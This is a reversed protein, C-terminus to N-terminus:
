QENTELRGRNVFKGLKELLITMSFGLAGVTIIGAIVLALDFKERGSQIRTGIGIRTQIFLEAAMLIAWSMGLSLNIGTIISPLAAPIIVKRILTLKKYGYVSALEIYKKPVSRVGAFTNLTLPYIAAVTIVVDRSLESTGFWMIILPIWGIIPVQRVVHFFPAFLKEATRSLGMLMGFFFGITAGIVFGTLVRKLSTLIHLLFEKEVFLSIFTKVIKAPSPLFLQSVYGTYSIYQWILLLSLPLVISAITARTRKSFQVIM